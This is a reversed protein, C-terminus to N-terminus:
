LRFFQKYLQDNIILVVKTDGFMQEFNHTKTSLALHYLCDSDMKRLRENSLQLQANNFDKNENLKKEM